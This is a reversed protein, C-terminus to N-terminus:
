RRTRSSFLGEPIGPDLELRRPIPRLGALEDDGVAVAEGPVFPLPVRIGDVLEQPSRLFDPLPQVRGDPLLPVRLCSRALLLEVLDEGLVLHCLCCLLQPRGDALLSKSIRRRDAVRRGRAQDSPPRPARLVVGKTVHEADRAPEPPEHGRGVRRAGEGLHLAPGLLVGQALVAGHEGLKALVHPTVQQLEVQELVLLLTPQLLRGDQPVGGHGTAPGAAAGSTISVPEFPSLRLIGELVQGGVDGSECGEVPGLGASAVRRVRNADWGREHLDRPVLDHDHGLRRRPAAAIVGAHGLRSVAGDSASPNLLIVGLGLILPLPHGELHDGVRALCYTDLEVRGQLLREVLVRVAFGPAAHRVRHRLHLLPDGRGAPWLRRALLQCVRDPRRDLLEDTVTLILIAHTVRAVGRIGQADGPRLCLRRSIHAQIGLRHRGVGEGAEVEPRKPRM